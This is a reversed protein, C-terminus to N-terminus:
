RQKWGSGDNYWWGAQAKAIWRRAFTQQIQQAWEPHDNAVAIAQYLARRDNNETNVLQKVQNRIALAIGGPNRVTIFGDNQVGVSGNAYFEKLANYRARMSAKLKRVDASDANLDAEAANAPAILTNLMSVIVTELAGHQNYSFPDDEAPLPSGPDQDPTMEQINAGENQIEEIIEDAVKEAAAAPFYINITVCAALLSFLTFTM